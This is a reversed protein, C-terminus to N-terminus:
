TQFRVRKWLCLSCNRWVDWGSMSVILWQWKKVKQCPIFNPIGRRIDREPYRCIDGQCFFNIKSVMLQAVRTISFIIDFRYTVCKKRRLWIIGDITQKQQLNDSFRIESEYWAHFNFNISTCVGDGIRIIM